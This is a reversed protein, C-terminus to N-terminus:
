GVIKEKIREEKEWSEQGAERQMRTDKLRKM